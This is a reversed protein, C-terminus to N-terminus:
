LNESLEKKTRPPGGGWNRLGGGWFKTFLFAENEGRSGHKSHVQMKRAGMSHKADIGWSGRLVWVFLVLGLWSRLCCEVVGFGGGLGGGPGRLVRKPCALGGRLRIDFGLDVKIWECSGHAMM